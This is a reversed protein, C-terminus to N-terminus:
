NSKQLHRTKYADLLQTKQRTIDPTCATTCPPELRTRTSPDAIGLSSCWDKRVEAAWRLVLVSCTCPRTSADTSGCARRLSRPTPQHVRQDPAGRPRRECHCWIRWRRWHHSWWPKADTRTYLKFTFTHPTSHHMYMNKVQIKLRTYFAVYGVVSRWEASMLSNKDFYVCDVCNLAESVSRSTDPTCKPAPLKTICQYIRM